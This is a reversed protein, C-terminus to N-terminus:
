KKENNAENNTQKEVEYFELLAIKVGTNIFKLQYIKHDVTSVKGLYSHLDGEVEASLGKADAKISSPFFVTTVRTNRVVDSLELLQKKVTSLSAPYVMKLVTEQMFDVTQPTVNFITKVVESSRDILYSESVNGGNLRYTDTVESPILVTIQQKSLLKVALILNSIIMLVCLTAIINRQRLLSHVRTSLTNKDM